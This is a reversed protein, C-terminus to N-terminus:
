LVNHKERWKRLCRKCTPRGWPVNSTLNYLGPTHCLIGVVEGTHPDHRGLHAVRRRAGKGRRLVFTTSM